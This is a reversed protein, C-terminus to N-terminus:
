ACSRHHRIHLVKDRKAGNEGAMVEKVNVTNVAELKGYSELLDFNKWEM